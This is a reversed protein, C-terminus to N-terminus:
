LGDFLDLLEKIKEQEAKGLALCKWLCVLLGQLVLMVVVVCVDRWEGFLMVLLSDVVGEINWVLWVMGVLKEDIGGILGVIGSIVVLFQVKFKKFVGVVM